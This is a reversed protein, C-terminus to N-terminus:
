GNPQTWTIRCDKMGVPWTVAGSKFEGRFSMINDKFEVFASKLKTPDDITIGVHDFFKLLDNITGPM